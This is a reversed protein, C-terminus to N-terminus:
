RGTVTIGPFCIWPFLSDGSNVRERSIGKINKFMEPINGSVMAESVPCKIKGDEIYFSSKAVGSFDGKESPNMGAVHTVLLGKKVKGVLDALAAGGGEVVYCGGDNYACPLGTKNSAYRSLLFSRLIGKGVIEANGAKFGERTVHYGSTLADSLPESRLTFDPHAVPKGLLGCYAGAGSLVGADKLSNAMFGIFAGLCEPTVIIDGTFKGLLPAAELQAVSERLLRDAGAWELLPKELDRSYGTVLNFASLKGNKKACFLSLLEYSGSKSDSELGSSNRIYKNEQTFALWSTRFGIEPYREQVVQLFEQLRFYMKDRDALLNGSEVSEAERFPPIDRATDAAASEAAALLEPVAGAVAEPSDGNLSVAGYKGEFVAELQINIDRSTRFLVVEGGEFSM